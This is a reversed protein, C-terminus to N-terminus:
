PKVTGQDQSLRDRDSSIDLLKHAAELDLWLLRGERDLAVAAKGDATMVTRTIAVTGTPLCLWRQRPISYFWITGDISPAVLVGDRTLSVHNVQAALTVWRAAAPTWAGEHWTGLRIEGDNTAVAMTRADDAVAIEQIAGSGRFVVQPRWSVTDIAVVDGNAYGAYVARHAAVALLRTVHVGPGQLVVPPAGADAHWLAGDMTSFVVSSTSPLWAFQDIAQEARALVATIHGAISWRLVRGDHGATIFDDDGEGSFSLQSVSGHGTPISRVRKPNAVSWIEVNATLGYAAFFNGTDSPELLHDFAEHSESDHVERSPAVITLAPNWTTVIANSSQRDFIASLFPSNSTAAVRAFRPPLRWARLAGRIDGSIVFPHERTPASLSTVRVGHGKYSAILKTELDIVTVIGNGGNAILYEGDPSAVVLGARGELQAQPAAVNRRPDWIGVTGARCAYAVGKNGPIFQVSTVPGRCLELQAALHFPAGEFLLAQGDMTAFVLKHETASTDWYAFAATAFRQSAGTMRVLEVGATAMAVAITDEDVFLVTDGGPISRTLRPAPATAAGPDSIEFVRLVGDQSMAALLRGSPSFSIGRVHMDRLVPVPLRATRAVDFLCIDSPDCTYALLQRAASYAPIAIRSVGRAVVSTHSTLDTRAITGDGGLSLIAGDPAVHTWFVGDGHPRARVFAVGRAVAEARIQDARVPDAGHYTALMDIAASPDKTVLIEAYNLTLQDLAVQVTARARTAVAESTDARDRAIAINRVFLSGGVVVLAVAALTSIALTRHRRTWHALMAYLSYRRASIRAGSKFAKLDAALFGANHYRRDPEPELAKDIITALDDDIGARRLIRRRARVDSPPVRDNGCLEWLMTGIAYVDTRQDVHDGRKQEPSMYAPTGLVSGVKTLEDNASARFPGEAIAPEEGVALDKALGWDIVVTEGFDGVIVNSPKLDRHIIDRGHAYAIADTVAIVHHLLGIRAEVTDREAILDHLSRGSVLKMAYFPTGDPWRGADHIPVIGPHELRATILVERLFRVEDVNGRALLEKVAVDRGLERDHARLVRGLGGRGHEGLFLYRQPNRPQNSLPPPYSDLAAATAPSRPAARIPEDLTPGSLSPGAPAVRVSHDVGGPKM